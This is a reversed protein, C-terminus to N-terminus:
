NERDADDDEPHPLDDEDDHELEEPLETADDTERLPAENEDDTEDYADDDETLPIVPSPSREATMAPYERDVLVLRLIIGQSVLTQLRIARTLPVLGLVIESPLGACPM